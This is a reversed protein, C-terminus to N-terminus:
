DNIGYSQSTVVGMPTTVTINLAGSKGNDSCVYSGPTAGPSQTADSKILTTFIWRAQNSDNTNPVKYGDPIGAVIAGNSAAITISTGAPLINGPLTNGPFTTPNRDRIAVTFPVPTNVFPATTTCVDLQIPAPSLATFAAESTSLVQVLSKRVHVTPTISPAATNLVGNYKGDGTPNYHGDGNTDIYQEGVIPLRCPTGLLGTSNKVTSNAESDMIALKDLFPECLDTFTEGLDYRNISSTLTPDEVYSEEGLAYAMVSIRGDTMRPQASCFTVTCVGASTLCSAGIVAGEATFSVATGDPVPNRFHDSLSVRIKSGVPALCGDHNAGEVNYIDTSLSMGDQDPIGTSVVLQDSLSTILPASGRVTALVRVPTNVTGASIVTSVSGDAGTAASTPSLVLGGTGSAGFLSFDVMVGSIPAGSASLVKFLVISSEQRGAGGTGVLAINPPTASIFVIQGAAATLVQLTGSRTVTAGGLSTSATITDTAGCGKDIYSTTAVGAVTAVPSSLTAKGALSCPSSFSVMQAPTFASAGNMVTVSVSATGGASLPSPSITMASLTLTPFSATYGLSGSAGLTGKVATAKVTFAGAQTGAQLTVRAVGASDTLASGSAPVFQMTSDTSTFSVTANSLLAGTSDKVVTQLTGPAAASVSTTAAGSQDVLTLTLPAMTVPPTPTGPTTGPCGPLNPNRTPDINTCSASSGGGGCAAVLVALMFAAIARSVVARFSIDTM